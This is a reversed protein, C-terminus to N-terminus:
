AFILSSLTFWSFVWSDGSGKGQLPHLRPVLNTKDLLRSPVLSPVLTASIIRIIM